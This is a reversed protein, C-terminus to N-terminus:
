FKPIHISYKGAKKVILFPLLCLLPLVISIIFLQVNLYLDSLIFAIQIVFINCLAVILTAKVHSYGNDLLRHHIHNRDAKFPSVGKSLRIIIVRIADLIPYSLIALVMIPANSVTYETKEMGNVSLFTIALFSLLFGIFLSGSDGMFLKRSSSLNFRLFGLLAGVLVFCLLVYLTEGNMMFYVGFSTNAIIAVSAALGDIGDILNFANIFFIFVLLTFLVSIVYPLEGIGFIGYCDTIRNDTGLIVLAASFIQGVMKKKPSLVLLDDKIGLFLLTITGGLISLIQILSDKELDVFVGMIIIALSFSLFMGVGGLTPTKTTHMSREEPEDM